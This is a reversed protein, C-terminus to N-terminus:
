LQVLSCWVSLKKSPNPNKKKAVSVEIYRNKEWLHNLKFPKEKSIHKNHLRNINRRRLELKRSSVHEIKKDELSLFTFNNIPNKLFVSKYHIHLIYSWWKIIFSIIFTKELFFNWFLNIWMFNVWEGWYTSFYTSIISLLISFSWLWDIKKLKEYLLVVQLYDINHM